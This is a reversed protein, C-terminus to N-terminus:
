QAAAQTEDANLLWRLTASLAARRCSPVSRLRRNRLGSFSTAKFIGPRLILSLSADSRGGTVRLPIRPASAAASGFFAAQSSTMRVSATSSTALGAAARTLDLRPHFSNTLRRTGPATLELFSPFPNLVSSSTRDGIVGEAVSGTSMGSPEFSTLPTPRSM